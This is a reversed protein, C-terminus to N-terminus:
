AHRHPELVNDLRCLMSRDVTRLFYHASQLRSQSLHAFSRSFSAKGHTLDVGAAGLRADHWRLQFGKMSLALEAVSVSYNGVTFMCLMTTYHRRGFYGSNLLM